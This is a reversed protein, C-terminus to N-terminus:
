TSKSEIWERLEATAELSTRQTKQLIQHVSTCNGIEAATELSSMLDRFSDLGFSACISKM